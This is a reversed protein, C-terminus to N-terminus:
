TELELASEAGHWHSRGDSAPGGAARADGHCDSFRVVASPGPAIPAAAACAIELELQRPPLSRSVPVTAAAAM